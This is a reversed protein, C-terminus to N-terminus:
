STALSLEFNDESFNPESELSLFIKFIYRSGLRLFAERVKERKPGVSVSISANSQENEDMQRCFFCKLGRFSKECSSKFLHFIRFKLTFILIFNSFLFELSICVNEVIKVYKSEKRFIFLISLLFGLYELAGLM